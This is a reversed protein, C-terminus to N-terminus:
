IKKNKTHEQKNHKRTKKTHEQKQIKKNKQTKKKTTNEPKNHKRTSKM